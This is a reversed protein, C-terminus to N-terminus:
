RPSAPIDEAIVAAREQWGPLQAALFADIAGLGAAELATQLQAAVRPLFALYRPKGDRLCLRLFVGLIRAHRQAGLLHYRLRIADPTGLARPANQLYHALMEQELSGSLDRRADQLLSVLDYECPGPLGDQFDLLGCRAVGAREGLLMLNDVHFDRLVVTEARGDVPALAQQWLDLFRARFAPLDLDPRVAPAFWDTFLTLEEM